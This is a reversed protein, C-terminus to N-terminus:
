SCLSRARRSRRPLTEETPVPPGEKLALLLRHMIVAQTRGTRWVMLIQEVEFMRIGILVLQAPPAPTIIYGVLDSFLMVTIAMVVGATLNALRSQAGAATLVATGSMSGGVPVGRLLGAAINAISQGRFDGALDPYRGNPNPVSQSIAAGQVLGAFTLSPAPIVLRPVLSGLKLIGLVFMVIGTLVRLTAPAATANPGSRVQPVDAILAAMAGPAQMSMFVSSTSAAGAVTKFLFGYLGAVPNVSALIGPALGDPVSVVGHVLGAGLNKRM